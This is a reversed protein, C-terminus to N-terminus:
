GQQLENVDNFSCCPHSPGSEKFLLGSSCGRMSFSQPSPQGSCLMSCTSHLAGHCQTFNGNRGEQATPTPGERSPVALGTSAPRSQGYRSLAISLPLQHLSLLGSLALASGAPSRAQKSATLSTKEAQPGPKCPTLSLHFGHYFHDTSLERRSCIKLFVIQIKETKKYTKRVAAWLDHERCRQLATPCPNVM